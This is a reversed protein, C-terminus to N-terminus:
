IELIFDTIGFSLFMFDVSHHLCPSQAGRAASRNKNQYSLSKMNDRESYFRSTISAKLEVEQYKSSKSLMSLLKKSLM